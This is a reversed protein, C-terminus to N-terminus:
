MGRRLNDHIHLITNPVALSLGDYYYYQKNCTILSTMTSDRFFLAKELSGGYLGTGYRFELQRRDAGAILDTSREALLRQRRASSIAMVYELAM